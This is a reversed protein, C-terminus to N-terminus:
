EEPKGWGGGGPTNIQIIEGPRLEVVAQGSLNVKDMGGKGNHRFVFNRGISGSGGGDMGYPAFVRRESLISSRLPIRAEIERTIGDGGSWRGRGGTGANIEFRRVIVQTRKEIVEADTIRTNTSHAHVAHAGHWGPGAGARM